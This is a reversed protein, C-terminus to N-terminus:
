ATAKFIRMSYIVSLYLFLISVQQLLKVFLFKQPVMFRRCCIFTLIDLPSLHKVTASSSFIISNCDYKSMLKLLTITGGINNSYYELPKRVSEGVAKLGAFHICAEFKPSNQFVAELGKEDAIDVEFFQVRSSEVGAIDVARKLGVPSSNVLNDVVTVRYGAQLLCVITHVGIYGAGRNHVFHHYLTL